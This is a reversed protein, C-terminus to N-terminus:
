MNSFYSDLVMCGILFAIGKRVTDRNEKKENYHLRRDSTIAESFLKGIEAGDEFYEIRSSIIDPISVTHDDPLPKFGTFAKDSWCFVCRSKVNLELRDLLYTDTFKPIKKVLDAHLGRISLLASSTIAVVFIPDM